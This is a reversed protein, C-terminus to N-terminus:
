RERMLVPLLFLLFLELAFWLYWKTLGASRDALLCKRIQYSPRSNTFLACIHKTRQYWSFCNRYVLVQQAPFFAQLLAKRRSRWDIFEQGPFYVVTLFVLFSPVHKPIASQPSPRMLLGASSGDRVFRGTNAPFRFRRRSWKNHKSPSM